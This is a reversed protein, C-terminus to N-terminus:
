VGSGVWKCVPPPCKCVVYHVTWGAMVKSETPHDHLYEELTADDRDGGDDDDGPCCYM